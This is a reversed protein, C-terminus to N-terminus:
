VVHVELCKAIAFGCPVSSRVLYKSSIPVLLTSCKGVPKKTGHELTPRLHGQGDSHLIRFSKKTRSVNITTTNADGLTGDDDRGDM